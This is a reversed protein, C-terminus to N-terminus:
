MSPALVTPRLFLAAEAQRRIKLGPLVEIQGDVHAKDWDLFHAAAGAVDGANFQALLTSDALDGTHGDHTGVGINYALSLLAAAQNTNPAKTVAGSAQLQSYVRQMSATLWAQAQDITCIDGPQVPHGNPYRTTGWGITWKGAPCLYAKAEFGEANKILPEAVACVADFNPWLIM